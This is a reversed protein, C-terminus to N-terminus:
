PKYKHNRQQHNNLQKLEIAAAFSVWDWSIISRESALNLSWFNQEVVGFKNAFVGNSFWSILKSKSSADLWVVLVKSIFKFGFDSSNHSRAGFNSDCGIVVRMTAEFIARMKSISTMKPGTM